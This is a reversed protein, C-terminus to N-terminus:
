DSQGSVPSVALRARLAALDLREGMARAAELEGQIRIGDADLEQRHEWYYALAKHILAMPLTPFQERLMEASYGQRYYALLDFLSIRHGTLRVEGDRDDLFDPLLM